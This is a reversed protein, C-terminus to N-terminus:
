LLRSDWGNLQSHIRAQVEMWVFNVKYKVYYWVHDSVAKTYCESLLEEYKLPRVHDRVLKM